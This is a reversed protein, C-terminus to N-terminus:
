RVDGGDDITAYVHGLTALPKHLSLKPRGTTKQIVHWFVKDYICSGLFAIHLPGICQLQNTVQSCQICKYKMHSARTSAKSAKISGGDLLRMWGKFWVNWYTQLQDLSLIHQWNDSVISDLTVVYVQNFSGDLYLQFRSAARIELWGECM